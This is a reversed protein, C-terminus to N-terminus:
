SNNRKVEYDRLEKELRSSLRRGRLKRVLAHRRKVPSASEEAVQQNSSGGGHSSEEADAIIALSHRDSHPLVLASQYAVLEPQGSSPSGSLLSGSPPFSSGSSGVVQLM